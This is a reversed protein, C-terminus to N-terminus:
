FPVPENAIAEKSKESKVPESGEKSYEVPILSLELYPDAGQWGERIWGTVKYMKNFEGMWYEKGDKTTKKYLKCLKHSKEWNINTKFESM